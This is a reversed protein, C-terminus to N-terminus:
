MVLAKKLKLWKHLTGAATFITKQLPVNHVSLYFENLPLIHRQKKVSLSSAVSLLNWIPTM